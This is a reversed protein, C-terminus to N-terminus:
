YSLLTGTVRLYVTERERERECVCVCVCVGAGQLARVCVGTTRTKGGSSDSEM